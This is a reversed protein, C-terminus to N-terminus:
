RNSPGKYWWDLLNRQWWNRSRLDEQNRRARNLGTRLQMDTLLYSNGNVQLHYYSKNANVHPDHNLVRTFKADYTKNLKM